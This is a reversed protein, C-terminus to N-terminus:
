EHIKENCSTCVALTKRHMKIMKREWENNGKLSKLNRIQHIVTDGEKGCLECTKEKLRATLSPYKCVITNPINDHSAERRVTKKKFGEDYFTRYKIRGKSDKYPVSFKKDKMYKRCAKRVSSELKCAFTKYM